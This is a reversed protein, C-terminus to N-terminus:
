TVPEACTGIQGDIMSRHSTTPSRIAVASILAHVAGARGRVKDGAVAVRQACILDLLDHRGIPMAIFQADNAAGNATGQASDLGRYTAELGSAKDLAAIADTEGITSDNRLPDPCGRPEVCAPPPAGNGSGEMEMAPGTVLSGTRGEGRRPANDATKKSTEERLQPRAEASTPAAREKKSGICFCGPPLGSAEPNDRDRMAVRAKEVVRAVVDGISEFGDLDGM